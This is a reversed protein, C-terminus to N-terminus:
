VPLTNILPLSFTVVTGTEPEAKGDIEFLIERNYLKKLLAIRERVNKLGLSQHARQHVTKLEESRHIGIGDDDIVVLMGSENRVFRLLLKGPSDRYRLGHWIANELNPQILMNPVYCVEPDLNEDVHIAFDFKSDFRMKELELYKHLLDLEKSLSIFDRGSSEMIRRMLSSYATLYKNAKLENNQAIFQNISNLSNFIFHPNMEKRLSELAIKRNKRKISRIARVLFFLMIILVALSGLLYYNFTRTYGILKDKLAKERELQQIRGEVLRITNEDLLTSDGHILDNFGALFREYLELQMQQNGGARYQDILQKLTLGAEKSNNSSMALDFATRLSAVARAQDGTLLQIGAIAKLQGIQVLADKREEAESLLVKRIILAKEYDGRSTYVLAIRDKWYVNMGPQGSMGNLAQEYVKIASDYENRYLFLQAKQNYADKLDAFMNERTFLAINANVSTLSYTQNVTLSELRSKDHANSKMEVDSMSSSLANSYLIKADKNKNLKEKVKALLRSVRAVDEKRKREQYGALAKTLYEEAKDYAEQEILKIGLEEYSKLLDEEGSRKQFSELLENATAAEKKRQDSVPVDQGQGHCVILVAMFCLGIGIRVFNM